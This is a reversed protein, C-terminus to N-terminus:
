LSPIPPSADRMAKASQRLHAATALTARRKGHLPPAVYGLIELDTMLRGATSRPVNLRRELMVFAPAEGDALADLAAAFFLPYYFGHAEAMQDRLRFMALRHQAAQAARREAGKRARFILFVVLAILIPLSIYWYTWATTAIWVVVSIIAALGLLYFFAEEGQQSESKSM